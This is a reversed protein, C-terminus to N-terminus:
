ANRGLLVLVAAKALGFDLEAEQAGGRVVRGGAGLREPLQSDGVLVFDGTKMTLHCGRGFGLSM